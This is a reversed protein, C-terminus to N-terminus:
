LLEGAWRHLQKLDTVLSRPESYVIVRVLLCNLYGILAREIAAKGFVGQM